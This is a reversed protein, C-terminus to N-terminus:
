TNIRGKIQRVGRQTEQVQQSMLFKVLGRVEYGGINITAMMESPMSGSEPQPMNNAILSAIRKAHPGEFPVLAEQVDGFGGNGYQVPRTFVGGTKYWQVDIDPYPISVPGVSKYNTSISVHPLKFKPISIKLNSFASKIREIIRLVEDYANSIPNTISSKVRDFISSATSKISDFNSSFRDRLNQVRNTANTVTDNWKNQVTSKMDSWISQTKSKINDYGSSINSKMNELKTRTESVSNEWGSKIKEKVNSSFESTKEKINTWGKSIKDEMDSAFKSTKETVNEWGKSIIEKSSDIWESTVESVVEVGKDWAKGLFGWTEIAKEKVVDWNKWLAIGIGILAAVAAIIMWVPASIGAIVGGVAAFLPKLSMLIKILNGIFSILPGIVASVAGIVVIVGQIVPDLKQFWDAVVQIKEALWQLFPILMEMIVMGLPILADKFERFVAIFEKSEEANANMEQMKGDVNELEGGIGGLSYMADAGLDEFKTGYLGVGIQNALVQDDMGKLEAIVANHLEKASIKGENFKKWLDQTSKSMEGFADSTAKSGDKIRVDFEKIADNIYDLNYVGAQSGQILLQFYEDASFGAQSFLPAYEAINDFMENSFNLGNQAGHAMLDFAKKSDIGFNTIINSGARTVENVDSDFTEALNLASQTVNSLEEDNLGKINQRTRVLADTVDDLSEGFGKNYIDQASIALAEAESKTLGLSNQVKTTATKFDNAMLLSAGGIAAVSTTVTATMGNGVDKMKESAKDASEQMKKFGETFSNGINKGVSDLKSGMSKFKTQLAKLGKEVQSDDIKSDIIISGDAM